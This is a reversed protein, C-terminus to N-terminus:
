YHHNFYYVSHLLPFIAMELYKDSSLKKIEQELNYDYAIPQIPIECVGM